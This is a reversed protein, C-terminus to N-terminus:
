IKRARTCRCYFTMALLNAGRENFIPQAQTGPLRGIGEDLVSLWFERIWLVTTARKSTKHAHPTAM